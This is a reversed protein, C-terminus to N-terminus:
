NDPCDQPCDQYAESCTCNLDNGKCNSDTKQCVGDGCKDLCIALTGGGNIGQAQIATNKLYTEISQNSSSNIEKNEQTQTNVGGSKNEVKTKTVFLYNYVGFAVVLAVILVIIFTILVKKSM